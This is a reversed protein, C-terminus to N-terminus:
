SYAGTGSNVVNVAIGEPNIVGLMSELAWISRYVKSSILPTIQM